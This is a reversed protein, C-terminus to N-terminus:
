LRILWTQFSRGILCYLADAFGRGLALCGSLKNGCVILQYNESMQDAEAEREGSTPKTKSFSTM